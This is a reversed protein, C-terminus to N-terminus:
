REMTERERIGQQQTIRKRFTCLIHATETQLFSKSHEILNNLLCLSTRNILVFHEIYIKM